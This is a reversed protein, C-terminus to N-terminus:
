SGRTVRILKLESSIAARERIRLRPIRWIFDASQTAVSAERTSAFFIEFRWPDSWSFGAGNSRSLDSFPAADLILHARALKRTSPPLRWAQHRSKSYLM